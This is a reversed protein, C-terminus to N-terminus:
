KEIYCYFGNGGCHEEDDEYYLSPGWPTEISYVTLGDDDEITIKRHNFDIWPEVGSEYFETASWGLEETYSTEPLGLLTYFENIGAYGRIAFNRNFHYEAMIVQELTAEFYRNSVGDYFLKPGPTDDDIELSGASCLTETSIHVKKCKDRVIAEKIKDDADEGYVQKAAERYERYSNDILGYAGVLSSQVRKNMNNSGIICIATGLGTAISPLYYPLAANVTELTTLEAGKEERAKEINDLAKPTAKVALITTGFLGGVGMFTLITPANKKIFRKTLNYTYQLQNKM